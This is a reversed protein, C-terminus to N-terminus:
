HINKRRMVLNTLNLMQRGPLTLSCRLPLSRKVSRWSGMEPPGVAATWAAPCGLFSRERGGSLLELQHSRYTYKQYDDCKVRCWRTTRQNGLTQALRMSTGPLHIFLLSLVFGGEANFFSGMSWTNSMGPARKYGRIGLEV